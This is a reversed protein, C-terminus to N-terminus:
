NNRNENQSWMIKNGEIKIQLHGEGKYSLFANGYDEGLRVDNAPVEKRVKKPEDYGVLVHDGTLDYVRYQLNDGRVAVIDGVKIEVRPIEDFKGSDVFQKHEEAWRIRKAEETENLEGPNNFQGENFKM